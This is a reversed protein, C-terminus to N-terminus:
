KPELHLVVIEWQTGLRIPAISWVGQSVFVKKNKRSYLGYVYDYLYQSFHMLWWIQGAHTHGALELDVPTHVLKSLRYPRHSLLITYRGNDEMKTESLIGKLHRKGRLEKDDIGILQIDDFLKVAQNRLPIIKGVKFVRDILLTDGEFDIDHNWIVAYVPMKLRQFAQFFHVYNPQPINVSDGWLLVLDPNELAIRWVLNKLFRKGHFGDAHLDTVFVIKRHEKIKESQLTIVTSIM